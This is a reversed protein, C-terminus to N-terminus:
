RILTLNGQKNFKKGTPTVAEVVYIYAGMPQPKSKYQGNWGKNIDTTSFVEEGWRNFIRFSNLTAQGKLIIKYEDNISTGSGPSFANAMEIYSEPSVIIDISDNVVCGDETVGTVYYRTTVSPQAIPDKINTASLGFPPTYTFYSCNGNAYLQASQGPYITQSPGMYIVGSPNIVVNAQLTDKCGKNDIGYVYFTTSTTPSVTVTSATSDSVLYSPSWLYSLAGGATLTTPTNPCLSRDGNLNMFNVSLINIAMTETGKCGIPTTATLTFVTSNIGDFIPNLVTADNLDSAPSWQYSYTGSVPLVTGLLHVTDGSCIERDLGANVIPIPEVNIVISQTSDPCGPYSAKVSYPYQGYPTPTITTNLITSNSVFTTPTWNFSYKPNGGTSNVQVADGECITSVPNLINFGGLLDITITKTSPCAVIGQASVTVTYTTNGAMQNGFVIPNAISSSSLGTTPVWSYNYPQTNPLVNVGIQISSNVCTTTDPTITVTPGVIIGVNITDTYGCVTDTVVYSTTMTPTVNVTDCKGSLCNITSNNSGGPLVDWTFGSNGAAWLKITQGSCITTDNSAKIPKHVYIRINQIAPTSLCNLSDKVNVFLTHWGTDSITPQWTMCVNLISDYPNSFTITSGLFASSSNDFMHKVFVGAVASKIDFCFNLNNGPCTKVTDGVTTGNAINVSDLVTTVPMQTCNDVVVQMDRMISGLLIGNRYESCKISLVFKGIVNPTLTFNGTNPDLNFTNNCDMPQGAVSNLNYGASLISTPTTAVCAVGDRPNIMEFYLSDGDPDVAGGNHFYPANVCMYPIPLSSSSNSNLFYPSSNDQALPANLNDFHTEVYLNYGSSLTNGINLINNNRCCLDVWFRWDNCQVPLSITASYWWQEYGPIPSSLLECQTITSDCGNSLTSGNSVPPTTPIVGVMKPMVIQQMTGTCPSTYCMTFTAPETSAASGNNACNRYFKFYFIYSNVTGPVKKYILEGGATHSAFLNNSLTFMSIFLVLTSLIKRM